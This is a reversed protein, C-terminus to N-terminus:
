KFVLVVALGVLIQLIVRNFHLKSSGAFSILSEEKLAQRVNEKGIKRKQQAM